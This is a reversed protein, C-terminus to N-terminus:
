ENRDNDSSSETDYGSYIETLMIRRNLEKIVGTAHNINELQKEKAYGELDTAPETFADFGVSGGSGKLWYAFKKIEEFDEKVIAEDVVDFWSSLQSIFKEIISRLKPNTDLLRCTLQEPMVYDKVPRTIAPSVHAEQGPEVAVRRYIAHLKQVANAINTDDKEIAFQEFIKAPEVFQAFGVSGASGKLWHGLRKLEEYDREQWASDIAALQQELRVVFKEVISRFKQNSMPLSSYITEDNPENQEVDPSDM